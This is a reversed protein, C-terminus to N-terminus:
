YAELPMVFGFGSRPAVFGSKQFSLPLPLLGILGTLIDIQQVVVVANEGTEGTECITGAPM